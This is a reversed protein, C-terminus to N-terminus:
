QSLWEKVKDQNELIYQKILEETRDANYNIQVNNVTGNNIITTVGDMSRRLDAIAGTLERVNTQTMTDQISMEEIKRELLTILALLPKWAKIIFEEGIKRRFEAFDDSNDVIDKATRYPIDVQRGAEAPNGTKATIVKIKEVKKPDTPKGRM